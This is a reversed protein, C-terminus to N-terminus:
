RRLNFGDGRSYEVAISRTKNKGNITRRSISASGVMEYGGNQARSDLVIEGKGSIVCLLEGSASGVLRGGWAYEDFAGIGTLGYWGVGAGVRLRALCSRGVVNAAGAGYMIGGAFETDFPLFGDFQNTEDGPLWALPDATCTKGVFFGGTLGFGVRNMEASMGGALYFEERGVAMHLSTKSGNLAAWNFGGDLLGLSGAFGTPDGMDDFGWRGTVSLKRVKGLFKAYGGSAGIELEHARVGGSGMCFDPGQSTLHNYELYGKFEVQTPLHLGLRGDLRLQRMDDGATVAYGTLGGTLFHSGFGQVARLPADPLFLIASAATKAVGNILDFLSAVVENVSEGVHYFANSLISNLTAIADLGLLSDMIIASITAELEADSYGDPDECLTGMLYLTIQPKIGEAAIVFENILNTIAAGSETVIAGAGDLALIADDLVELLEDARDQLLKLASDTPGTGIMEIWLEQVLEPDVSANPVASLMALLMEEIGDETLITNRFEYLGDYWSQLLAQQQNLWTGAANVPGGFTALATNINAPNFALDVGAAIEVLQCNSARAAAVVGQAIGNAAPPLAAGVVTQATSTLLTTQAELMALFTDLFDGLAGELAATGSDIGVGALNSLTLKPLLAFEEGFTVHAESATLLGVEGPYDGVVLETEVPDTTRFHSQEGLDRFLVPFAFSGGFWDKNALPHFSPALRYEALSDVPAFGRHVPDFGPDNFYDMGGVDWSRRFHIDENADLLGNTQVLGEIDEFFSVDMAAPFAQFGVPPIPTAQQNNYFARGTPLLNYGRLTTPGVLLYSERGGPETADTLQGDPLPYLFGGHVGPTGGIPADVGLQLLGAGTGCANPCDGGVSFGASQIHFPSDAWYALAKDRDDPALDFNRPQGCCDIMLEQLALDFSSPYPINLQGSTISKVPLNSLYSWGLNDLAINYGHVVVLPPIDSPDSQLIGTFGSARAYGRFWEAALYNIPPGGGIKSEVELGPFHRFGVGAHDGLGAQFGISGPHLLAHDSTGVPTLLHRAPNFAAPLEGPDDSGFGDEAPVLGGPMYYSAASFGALDHVGATPDGPDTGIRLTTPLPLGPGHLSGSPTIPLNGSAVGILPLSGLDAPDKGPCPPCDRSYAVAASAAVLSSSASDIRHDVIRVSGGGHVVRGRPFHTAFGTASPQLSLEVSLGGAAGGSISLASGAVPAIAEWLRANSALTDSGVLAMHLFYATSRTFRVDPVPTRLVGGQFTWSGTEFALPFADAVIEPDAGAFTGSIAAAPQLDADLEVAAGSCLEKELLGSAQGRWGIGAPFEFCIQDTFIGATSITTAGRTAPFGSMDFAPDGLVQMAGTIVLMTGVADDRDIRLAPTAAIPVVPVGAGLLEGGTPRVSWYGQNSLWVPASAFGDIDVLRGGGFDLRRTFHGIRASLGPTTDNIWVGDGDDHAVRVEILYEFADDLLASPFSFVADSIPLSAVAAVANHVVVHSGGGIPDGEGAPPIFNVIYRVRIDEAAGGPDSRDLTSDIQIHLTPDEDMLIYGDPLTITSASIEVGNDAEAACTFAFIAALSLNTVTRM